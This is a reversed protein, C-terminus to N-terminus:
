GASPRVGLTEKASAATFRDRVQRDWAIDLAILTLSAGVAVGLITTVLALLGETANFGLWAGVLAGGAAAAFGTTKTKAASDRNVSTALPPELDASGGAAPVAGAVLMVATVALIRRGMQIPSAPGRSKLRLGRLFFDGAHLDELDLSWPRRGAGVQKRGLRRARREDETVPGASPDFRRIEYRRRLRRL